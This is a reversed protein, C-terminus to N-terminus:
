ELLVVEAQMGQKTLFYPKLLGKEVSIKIVNLGSKLEPRLNIHSICVPSICDSIQNAIKLQEDDIDHVGYVTQDDNIGIQIVGGEDSNLFAVVTKLVDDSWQRKIELYQTEIM